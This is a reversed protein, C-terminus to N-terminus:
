RGRGEMKAIQAPTAWRIPMGEFDTEVAESSRDDTAGEPAGGLPPPQPALGLPQRGQSGVVAGM